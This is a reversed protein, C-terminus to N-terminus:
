QDHAMCQLLSPINVLIPAMQWIALNLQVPPNVENRTRTALTFGSGKPFYKFVLLSNRARCDYTTAPGGASFLGRHNTVHIMSPFYSSLFSFSSSKRNLVGGIIWSSGGEGLLEETTWVLKQHKTSAEQVRAHEYERQILDGNIMSQQQNRVRCLEM